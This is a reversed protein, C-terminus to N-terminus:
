LVADNDREPPILDPPRQLDLETKAGSHSVGRSLDHGTSGDDEVYVLMAGALSIVDGPKLICEQVVQDNVLTGGRSGLDYIVYRGFRLRLQAHSRSVRQDDIVIHNDHRRGINIVHRSLPISQLGGVILQPNRPGRERSKPTTQAAEMAQTSRLSKDEHSATVQIARRPLAADSHLQIGPTHDLRLGGRNALDVLTEAIITALEPQTEMLAELDDPNLHVVFVNPANLIGDADPRAFDELAHALHSAVERPHLRGSFLRAFSGEVLQEIRREVQTFRGKEM